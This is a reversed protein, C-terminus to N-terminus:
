APATGIKAALPAIAKMVGALDAELAARLGTPPAPSTVPLWLTPNFVISLDFNGGTQGSGMAQCAIVHPYQNPGFLTGDLTAVWLWYDTGLVQTGTLQRVQGITDRSCYVVADKRGSAENHAIVWNQLNGGEDGPEWDRVCAAPTAGTVDISCWGYRAHPFAAEMEATTEVGLHGDDYYCAIDVWGPIASAGAASDGMIRPM